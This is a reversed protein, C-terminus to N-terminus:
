SRPTFNGFSQPLRRKDRQLLSLERVALEMKELREEIIVVNAAGGGRAVM